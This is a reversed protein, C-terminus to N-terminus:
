SRHLLRYVHPTHGTVRRFVRTLHSQDAFGAALAIQSLSQQTGELLERARDVRLRRVYEGISCGHLQRFARALHSPHVQATAALEALGLNELMRDHLQEQVAQLWAPARERERSTRIRVVSGIMALLLGDMVLRERGERFEDHLQTALWPVRGDLLPIHEAPLRVDFHGLAELWRAGFQLNFIRAEGTEFTEAHDAEAPHYFTTRRGFVRQRGEFHEVMSGELILCFFPQAHAHVPVVFGNDYTTEALLTDAIRLPTGARGYFSGNELKRNM